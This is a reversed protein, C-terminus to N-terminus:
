PLHLVALCHSRIFSSHIDTHTHSHTDPPSTQYPKTYQSRGTGEPILGPFGHFPHRTHALRPRYPAAVAPGRQEPLQSFVSPLRRRRQEGFCCELGACDSSAWKPRTRSASSSQSVQPGPRHSLRRKKSVESREMKMWWLRSTLMAASAPCSFLHLPQVDFFVFFDPEM